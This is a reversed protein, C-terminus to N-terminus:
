RILHKCWWKRKSGNWCTSRWTWRKPTRNPWMEISAPTKSSISFVTGTLVNMSNTPIQTPYASQACKATSKRWHVPLTFCTKRRRRTWAVTKPWVISKQYVNVSPVQWWVLCIINPDQMVLIGPTSSTSSWTVQVTVQWFV